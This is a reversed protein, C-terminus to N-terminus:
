SFIILQPTFTLSCKPASSSIKSFDPGVIPIPLRGVEREEKIFRQGDTLNVKTLASFYANLTKHPAEFSTALLQELLSVTFRYRKKRPHSHKVVTQLTFSTVVYRGRVWIWARELFEKGSETELIHEPVYRRIFNRQKEFNDFAKLKTITPFLAPTCFEWVVPESLLQLSLCTGSVIIPTHRLKQLSEVIPKLVPRPRFSGYSESQFRGSLKTVLIQADDLVSILNKIGLEGKVRHYFGSPNTIHETYYDSSADNLMESLSKFVDGGLIENPLLQLFLWHLKFENVDRSPFMRKMASCFYEFVILRAKIVRLMHRRAIRTNRDYADNPCGQATETGPSEYFEYSTPIGNEVIESIDESGFPSDENVRSTFYFGWNRILGELLLRTKGSGSTNILTRVLISYFPYVHLLLQNFLESITNPCIICSIRTSM